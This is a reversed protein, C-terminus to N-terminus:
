LQKDLKWKCHGGKYFESSKACKNNVGDSVFSPTEKNGLLLSYNNTYKNKIRYSDTEDNIKDFYWTCQGNNYQPSGSNCNGWHGAILNANMIINQGSITNKIQYENEEEGIPSIEFVNSQGPVNGRLYCNNTHELQGWTGNSGCLALYDNSMVNKLKFTGTFDSKCAGNELKNLMECNKVVCEGGQYWYDKANPKNGKCSVGNATLAIIRKREKEEATKAAVDALAQQTELSKGTAAAAATAEAAATASALQVSTPEDSVKSTEAAKLAANNVLNQVDKSAGVAASATAASNSVDTQLKLLEQEHKIKIDAAIKDAALKDAALKDAAIKPDERIFFYWIGYLLLAIVLFILVGISVNKYSM